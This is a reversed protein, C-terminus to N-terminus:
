DEGPYNHMSLDTGYKIGASMFLRLIMEAKQHCPDWKEIQSSSTEFQDCSFSILAYERVHGVRDIFLIANRPEFCTKASRINGQRNSVYNYLIDTLKNIDTKTLIKMELISDYVLHGRQVPYDNKHYRFSILKITDSVNLPYFGLRHSESYKNNYVCNEDMGEKSRPTIIRPTTQGNVSAVFLISVLFGIPFLCSPNRMRFSHFVIGSM